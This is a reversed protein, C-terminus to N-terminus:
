SQRAEPLQARLVAIFRRVDAHTLILSCPVTRALQDGLVWMQILEPHRAMAGLELLGRQSPPILHIMQEPHFTIRGPPGPGSM